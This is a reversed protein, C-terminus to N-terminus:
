GEVIQFINKVASEKRPKRLCAGYMCALHKLALCQWRWGIYFSTPTKCLNLSHAYPIVQQAECRSTRFKVDCTHRFLYIFTQLWGSSPHPIATNASVVVVFKQSNMSGRVFNPEGRRKVYWTVFSLATNQNCVLLNWKPSRFEIRRALDNNILNIGSVPTISKKVSCKEVLLFLFVPNYKVNILEFRV